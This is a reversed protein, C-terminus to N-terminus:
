TSLTFINYNFIPLDSSRFIQLDSSRFIQLDSEFYSPPTISGEKTKYSRFPLPQNSGELMPTM